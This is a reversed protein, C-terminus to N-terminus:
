WAVSKEGLLSRLRRVLADDVSVKREVELRVEGKELALTLEVPSPGAPAMELIAKVALVGQENFGRAEEARLRLVKGGDREFLSGQGAPAKSKRQQAEKPRVKDFRSWDHGPFASDLLRQTPPWVRKEWIGWRDVEGTWDKAPIVKMAGTGSADLIVYHIKTGVSVDEGREKLVMAVRVHEPPTEAVYEEIPKSLSKSLVVEDLALADNLVHDLYRQVVPEFRAADECRERMLLDICEGQLKRAILIADGRKFELGKVEPKTDDTARTGKYHLMRATYKKAGVFVIREYAKEYAISIYNSVCGCKAVMEPYLERNCWEGFDAVAKESEGQLLVSDTNHLLVRGIGDVFTHGDDISLDYVYEGKAKRVDAHVVQRVRESGHPRTRITWAAKAERYHISHEIGLLDFLYSFGATLKPSNSTYCLQKNSVSGDGEMMTGALEEIADDPLGYVFAPLFKGDSGVGCLAAFLCAATATGSRLAWTGGGTHLVSSGNSPIVVGFDVELRELWAKDNQAISLMDRTTTVGRISASGETVYAGILRVLASLEPSGVDYYRRVYMHRVGAGEFVIRGSPTLQFGFRRVKGHFSREIAFAQLYDWLDIRRERKTPRAARVKTYWAGAKVFEEPRTPEGRCMIGHDSTVESQGRKTSVLWMDKYSQHRVVEQVECWTPKDFVSSLAKWGPLSGREKGDGGFRRSVTLEWVEEFTLIEVRGRPSMLVTTRGGSVSDGYIPKMGLKRAEEMTRKILWAGNQTIGETIRPQYYRGVSLGTVGFKANAMVKFGMAWREAALWEPTNPPLSAKKKTWEKRLERDRQLAITLIGEADTHFCTHTLPCKAVPREDVSQRLTEPSMNWTLMISPYMGSFDLVHVDKLIGAREPAEMVFAGKVKEHMRVDDFKPKTPWHYGRERGLRLLAGDTQQHIGLNRSEVFINSAACITSFLAVYGTKAELKHLLMTDQRNYRLLTARRDGGAEWEQWCKGADFDTKGEGLVSQCISELAMSQKEGGSEAVHANMTKFVELSDLWRWRRFDVGLALRKSRAQVVPFDFGDGYWAVVVDFPKLAAWLEELLRAEDDDTDEHLMGSVTSGAVCKCGDGDVADSGYVVTWCLVRMQEKHAFSVRSDTEIDLYAVRPCPSTLDDTDAFHRKLPSVDAEWNRVGQGELWACGKDRSDYGDWSIRTWEGEETVRRVRKSARLAKVAAVHKPEEQDFRHFSDFKAAHVRVRLQGDVARYLLKLKDGDLYGGVYAPPTNILPEGVEVLMRRGM